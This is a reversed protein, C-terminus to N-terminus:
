LPSGERVLPVCAALAVLASLVLLLRNMQCSHLHAFHFSSSFLFLSRKSFPESSIRITSIPHSGFRFSLCGPRHTSSLYIAALRADEQVCLRTSGLVRLVALFHPSQCHTHCHHRVTPSTLVIPPQCAALSLSLSLSIWCAYAWCGYALLSSTRTARWLM